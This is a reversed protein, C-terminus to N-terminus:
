HASMMQRVAQTAQAVNAPTPNGTTIFRVVNDPSVGMVVVQSRDDGRWTRSVQGDWDLLARSGSARIKIKAAVRLWRSVDSLDLVSQVRLDHGVRAHLSDHWALSYDGLDKTTFVLVLPGTRPTSLAFTSDNINSLTFNSGRQGQAVKGFAPWSLALAAFLVLASRVMM